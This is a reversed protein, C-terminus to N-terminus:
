SAPRFLRCFLLFRLFYLVPKVSLAEAGPIRVRFSWIMSSLIMSWSKTRLSKTKGITRVEETEETIEQEIFFSLFISASFHSLAKKGGGREWAGRERV